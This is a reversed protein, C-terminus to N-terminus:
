KTWDEHKLDPIRNFEAPIDKITKMSSDTDSGFLDFFVAPYEATISKNADEYCINLVTKKM